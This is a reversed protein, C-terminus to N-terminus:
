HGFEPHLATGRVHLRLPAQIRASTGLDVHLVGNLQLDPTVTLEGRTSLAGAVGHINRFAIGSGGGANFSAELQTFRTSAGSGAAHAAPRSAAYGLNIGNLEGSRVKVEGSVLLRSLADEPTVGVGALVADVAATGSMPSTSESSLYTLSSAPPAPSRGGPTPAAPAAPAGAPAAALSSAAIAQQILAPVDVGVSSIQGSAVWPLSAHEQRRVSLHGDLAGFGSGLAFKEVEIAGASIHGNAVVESWATHPVYPPQWDAADLQFGAPGGAPDPTVQLQMSGAGGIRHLTVSAFQGNAERRTVAEYRDPLLGSGAFRVESFRVKTVSDPSLRDLIALWGLLRAAQDLTMTTPSIVIDGWRRQGSIVAQWLTPATVELTIEDLQVQGGLDVGILVVAPTPTTRIRSDRVHVPAHLAAEMRQAIRGAALTERQDALWRAALAAFALLVLYPLLRRAWARLPRRKAYFTAEEQQKRDDVERQDLRDPVNVSTIAFDTTSPFDTHPGAM